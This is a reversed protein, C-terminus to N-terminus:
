ARKEGRIAVIVAAWTLAFVAIGIGYMVLAAVHFVKAYEGGTAGIISAGITCGFASTIGVALLIAARVRSM